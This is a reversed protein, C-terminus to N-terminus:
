NAIAHTRLHPMTDLDLEEDLWHRDRRFPYLPLSVRLYDPNWFVRDFNIPIGTVYLSGLTELIHLADQQDRVLTPVCHLKKTEFTAAIVPTLSPHPGIEVLVSCGADVIKCIGQHFLVPERVHSNWYSAPVVDSLFDGTVNSLVPVERASIRLSAAALELEALIPEMLPSHFAHSVELEKSRRGASAALQAIHEVAAATGSLVVDHPGNIGAISCEAEKGALWERAQEATADLALMKGGRPLQGMLRGRAMVFQIAGEFDIAGAVCAAVIEGVSHGIVYHPRVGWHQLLDALAYEIAFIAPQVYRTNGLLSDSDAGFLVDLLPTGLEADMLTACRDITAKFRPELEYLQRGMGAYQAGQGTFVFAIKLKRGILAQGAFVGRSLRGEERWSRLKDGIEKKTRAIVALRHRMHARGAAATFAMDGLAPGSDNDLFSMWKGALQQLRPLSKASLLV